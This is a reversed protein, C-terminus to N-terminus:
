AGKLRGMRLVFSALITLCGLVILTLDLSYDALAGVLPYLLAILIREVMSIGSLVTARHDDGILTNMAASLM